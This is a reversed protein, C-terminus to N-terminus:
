LGAFGSWGSVLKKRFNQRSFIKKVVAKRLRKFLAIFTVCGPREIEARIKVLLMM